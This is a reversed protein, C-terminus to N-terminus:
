ERAEELVFSGPWRRELARIAERLAGAAADLAEDVSLRPRTDPFAHAWPLGAAGGSLHGVCLRASTKCWDEVADEPFGAAALRSRLAAASWLAGWDGEQGSRELAQLRTPGEESAVWRMDCALQIVARALSASEVAHHERCLLIVADCLALARGTAAQLWAAAPDERSLTRGIRSFGNDVAAKSRGISRIADEKSAM